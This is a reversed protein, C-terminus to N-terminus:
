AFDALGVKRLFNEHKTGIYSKFKSPDAAVEQYIRLVNPDRLAEAVEPDQVIQSYDARAAPNTRM